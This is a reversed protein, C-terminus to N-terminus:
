KYIAIDDDDDFLDSERTVFKETFEQEDMNLQGAWYEVFKDLDNDYKMHFPMKYKKTEQMAEKICEKAQSNIIVGNQMTYIHNDEPLEYDNWPPNIQEEFPVGSLKEAWLEQKNDAHSGDPFQNYNKWSISSNSM